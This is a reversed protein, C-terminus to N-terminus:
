QQPKKPRPIVTFEKTGCYYSFGAFAAAIFPTMAYFWVFSSISASEVSGFVAREFGCFAGEWTRTILTFVTNLSQFGEYERNVYFICHLVGLILDPIAAFLGAVFGKLAYPSQSGARVRVADKAGVDWMFLDILYYYFAITVIGILLSAYKRTPTDIGVPLYVMMGFIMMVAHTQMLKGIYPKSAAIKEKLTM